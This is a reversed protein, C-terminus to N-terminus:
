FIAPSFRMRLYKYLAQFSFGSHCKLHDYVRKRKFVRATCYLLLFGSFCRKRHRAATGPHVVQTFIVRNEIWFCSFVHFIANYTQYVFFTWFFTYLACIKHYLICPTSNYWRLAKTLRASCNEDSQVQETMRFHRSKWLLIHMALFCITGYLRYLPSM